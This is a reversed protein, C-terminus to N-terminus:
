AHGVEGSTAGHAGADGGNAEYRAIVRRQWYILRSGVLDNVEALVWWLLWVWWLDRGHGTVVIAAAFAVSLGFRVYRSVERDDSVVRDGM